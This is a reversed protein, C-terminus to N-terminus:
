NMVKIGTELEFNRKLTNLKGETVEGDFLSIIDKLDDLKVIKEENYKKVLLDFKRFNNLELVSLRNINNRRCINGIVNRCNSGNTNKWRVTASAKIVYGYDVYEVTKQGPAYRFCIKAKDMMLLFLNDIPLRLQINEKNIKIVM